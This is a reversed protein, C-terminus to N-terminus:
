DNLDQKRFIWLAMGVFLLTWLAIGLAAQLPTLLPEAASVSTGFTLASQNLSMLTAALGGPLLQGIRAFNGGFLALLQIALGEFLLSYALGAGVAVVVSRATIGLLFALAAYPLLTYATRLLSLGLQTFDVEGLAVGGDLILSIVISILMGALLAALVIAVAAIILSTFKAVLLGQRHVGRSLWLQFTRWSYEQATVSAAFIVLMLGGLVNGGAFELANLLANPWTLSRKLEEAGAAEGGMNLQLLALLLLHLSLIIGAMLAMEIWLMLRKFNKTNENAVLKWFM